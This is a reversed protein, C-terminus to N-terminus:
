KHWLEGGGIILGRAASFPTALLKAISIRECVHYFMIKVYESDEHGSPELWASKQERPRGHASFAMM